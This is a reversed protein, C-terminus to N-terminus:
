GLWGPNEHDSSLHNNKTPKQRCFELDEPGYSGLPVNTDKGALLKGYFDVMWFNM